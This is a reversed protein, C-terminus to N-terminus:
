PCPALKQSGYGQDWNEPGTIFLYDILLSIDGISLDDCTIAGPTGSENVDAEDPCAIMEVPPDLDAGCNGTVFKADILLSIDGITPRDDGSNNADGRMPGVCCGDCVDGINDGDTDEQGPNPDSPCNDGADCIGDADTDLGDNAPDNDALPGFGDTGVACDDCGDADVDACIHPDLPNSDTADAVGDNDDDPDGSDCIGDADTDLGDNAPDNDALPGFGDVGVACDDCGDADVDACIHPDLPNSDTADAVGDNDNDTDGADCIGDADTDLGDNSPLNDALPGFGDTGVACDDCGDADVDACIHPDLPNSDAADAVGDNDDDPDGSDCLGDADTDTGDNAPDNDALPGFGDTGVACDDCGDADADACISPDLPNTDSADAVGDNDDDPDAWDPDGDADTDPALDAMVLEAQFGDSNTWQGKYTLWSASGPDGCPILTAPDIEWAQTHTERLGGMLLSVYAPSNSAGTTLDGLAMTRRSGYVPHRAKYGNYVETGARECAALTGPDVGMIGLYQREGTGTSTYYNRVIIEDIAGVHDVDGAAIDIIMDSRVRLSDFLGRTTYTPWETVGPLIRCLGIANIHPSVEEDPSISNFAGGVM